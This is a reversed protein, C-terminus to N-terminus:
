SMGVHLDIRSSINIYHVCEFCYVNIQIHKSEAGVYHTMSKIDHGLALKNLLYSLYANSLYDNM